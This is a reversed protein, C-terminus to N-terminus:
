SCWCRTRARKLEVHVRVWLGDHRIDLIWRLQQADELVVWGKRSEEGAADSSWEKTQPSVVARRDWTIATEESLGFCMCRYDISAEMRGRVDQGNVDEAMWM